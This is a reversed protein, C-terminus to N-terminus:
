KLKKEISKLSNLYDKEVNTLERQKYKKYEDNAKELAKKHSITGAGDLVKEGTISLVSDLYDIHDKMYMIKRREAQIEAFDFYGSVM